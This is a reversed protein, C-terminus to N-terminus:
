SAGATWTTPTGDRRQVLDTSRQVMRSMPDKSGPHSDKVGKGHFPSIMFNQPNMKWFYIGARFIITLLLEKNDADLKGVKNYQNDQHFILKANIYTLLSLQLLFIKYMIALNAKVKDM